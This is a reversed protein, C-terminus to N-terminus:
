VTKNEAVKEAKNKPAAPVAKETAPKAVKEAKAEVLEAVKDDEIFVKALGEPVDYEEGKEYHKVSHGDPSGTKNGLMRIQVM